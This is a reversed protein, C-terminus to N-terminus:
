DWAAREQRVYEQADIGTWIEAGLGELELISHSAGRKKLTKKSNVSIIELLSVQEEPKLKRIGQVYDHYSLLKTETLM